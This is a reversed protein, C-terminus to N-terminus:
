AMEELGVVAEMGVATGSVQLSDGEELYIHKRMLDLSAAAPIVIDKAIHFANAGRKFKVTVSADAATTNSVYFSNVKAVKNSGVANAVIDTATTTVAAAYTKGNIAKLSKFNPNAM